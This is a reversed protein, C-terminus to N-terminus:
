FRNQVHLNEFSGTLETLPPLVVFDSFMKRSKEKITEVDHKQFMLDEGYITFPAGGVFSRYAEEDRKEFLEKTKELAERVSSEHLLHSYFAKIFETTADDDSHRLTTLVSRAGAALFSLALTEVGEPSIEDQESHSLCLVVLSGKLSINQVDQQTFFDDQKPLTLSGQNSSLCPSLMIACQKPEIHASIHIISAGSLLGLLVEKRAEGEVFPKTTFLQSLCNVEETARPLDSTPNGVFLAFGCEPLTESSKERITEIDGKSFMVDEGYVTFPAWILISRYDEREHQQFLNMVRRLAECVLTEQLLEGYFAEMFEKTADDSIPWLTALVSRAGAALFSRAIGIVGESSIKGQGTHCCCLVVLRAHLSISTIDNQTLLYSDQNPPSSSPENLSLDPALMIEGKKPEGHAAIHIISAGSLLGLVVQKKAEAKVLPRATFLKSLSVVEEAAKPLDTPTFDTGHLSVKPNGVFLAFGLDSHDPQEKTFTLTHLSPTVQISYSQSLYRGNEDILSCFPIFFLPGDPVVILKNGKVADRIPQILRNFLQKLITEPSLNDAGSNKEHVNQLKNGKCSKTPPSIMHSEFINENALSNLKFFSSDRNVNVSTMTFFGSMLPMLLDFEADSMLWRCTVDSNLVWVNLSSGDLEFAFLVISTEGNKVQLSNQIREIERNEEGNEIKSWISQAYDFLETDLNQKREISFHLEKARGLDTVLLGSEICGLSVFCSMLARHTRYFTSTFSLKNEDPVTNQFLEDCLKISKVLYSSAVKYEGLRLHADALDEYSYATLYSHGIDTSIQLSKTGHEIAKENDGLLRYIVGIHRNAEAIELPMGTTKALKLGEKYYTLAKDFKGLSLYCSGLGINSSTILTQDGEAMFFKLAKEYYTIAIEDKNKFSTSGLSFNIKAMIEQDGIATGIELSDELYSNAKEDEGLRQYIFFLDCNARAIGAKDGVTNAMEISQRFCDIAKSYEGLNVHVHGLDNSIDKIGNKDGITNYINLANKFYASANEYESLILYMRGLRRNSEAIGKQDGIATTLRIMEEYSQVADQNRNLKSYCIGLNCNVNPNERQDRIAIGLELTKKYYDIAIEWKEVCLYIDGLSRNQEAMSPQDSIATSIELSVKLFSIAKEYDKMRQYVKGLYMNAEAIGNQDGIATMLRLMEEFCLLAEDNRGLRFNSKGLTCKADAIIGQDGIETGLELTKKCYEIAIECKELCNYIIALQGNNVAMVLKDKITMGIELSDKLCIIAKEYDKLGQHAVSLSFNARAMGAQDHVTKAIELSKRHCEIAKSHEGLSCHVRGLENSIDKIGNKDNIFIYINLAHKFYASAKEYESLNLYIRGLRSNSEAIGKQDGIATMLRLMEEFCQIAEENRKLESCFIGLNCNIDAIRRQDSIAIGLNTATSIESSVKRLCSIAKEYDKLREYVDALYMNAHVIGYQNRIATAMQLSKKFCDIAQDYHGLNMYAKGVDISNQVESALDAM